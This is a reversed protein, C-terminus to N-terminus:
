GPPIREGITVYDDTGVILYIQRWGTPLDFGNASVDTGDLNAAGSGGNAIRIDWTVGSDNVVTIIRGNNNGDAEPLMVYPGNTSTSVLRVFTVDAAVSYNTNATVLKGPRLAGDAQFGGDIELNGDEDLEMIEDPNGGGGHNYWKYAQGTENEDYDIYFSMNGDSAVTLDGTGPGALVGAEIVVAGATGDLLLYDTDTANKMVSFTLRGDESNNSVDTAKAEIAGYITMNGADDEGLFDIVGLVDNDAMQAHGSTPDKLFMLRAGTADDNKNVLQFEPMASVTGCELVLGKDAIHQLAVDSDAGFLIKTSDTKLSLDGDFTLRMKEAAAESAGTLFVLDTRNNDAAFTDKAEARIAAATLVADTGSGESGAKFEISGLIDNDVITTENTNFVLTGAAGLGSGTAGFITIEGEDDIRLWETETTGGAGTTSFSLRGPSDNNAPTPGAFAEIRAATNYTSGTGEPMQFVIHGLSDDEQTLANGGESGRTKQFILAQSNANGGTANITINAQSVYLADGDAPKISWNGPASGANLVLNSKEAHLRMVETNSGDDNMEFILDKNEVLGKFKVNSLNHWIRLLQTGDDEYVIGKAANGADLTIGGSSELNIADDQNANAVIDIDGDANSHIYTGTDNFCLKNTGNLTLGTGDTHTLTTDQDDGFALIAGDSDLQIDHNFIATGADSGDLTLFVTDSSGDTGKFIIDSDGDQADITINGSTTTLTVAADGASIDDAATSGGGSANEWGPANAADNMTLVQDASGKPLRVYSTGNHYLMDGAADSGVAFGAAFTVKGGDAITM